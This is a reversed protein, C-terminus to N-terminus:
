RTLTFKKEFREGTFAFYLVNDVIYGRIDGATKDYVVLINNGTTKAFYFGHPEIEREIDIGKETTYWLHISENNEIAWQAADTINGFNPYDEEPTEYAPEDYPEDKEITNKLEYQEVNDDIKESEEVEDVLVENVDDETVVPLEYDAAEEVETDELDDTDWDIMRQALKLASDKKFDIVVKNSAVRNFIIKDGPNIKNREFFNLNAEVAAVCESDSVVMKESLPKIHSIQTIRNDKDIYAIDLPVYTNVGWFQLKQPKNFTFLMGENDALSKRFM